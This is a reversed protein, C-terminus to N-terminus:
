LQCRTLHKQFETQFTLADAVEDFEIMARYGFLGAIVRDRGFEVVVVCECLSIQTQVESIVICSTQYQTAFSIWARDKLVHFSVVCLMWRGWHVKKIRVNHTGPLRFQTYYLPQATEVPSRMSCAISKQRSMLPSLVGSKEKSPVMVNAAVRNKREQWVSYARPATIIALIGTVIMWMCFCRRVVNTEGISWRLTSVVTWLFTLLMFSLTMTTSDSWPPQVHRTIYLVPIFALVLIINFVALVVSPSNLKLISSQGPIICTDMTRTPSLYVIQIQFPTTFSWMALLLIDSVIVTINLLHYKRSLKRIELVEMATFIRWVYLNKVLLPSTTMALYLVFFWTRLHCRTISDPLLEIAICAYGTIAGMHIVLAYDVEMSKIEFNKRFSSIFAASAACIIVGAFFLSFLYARVESTVTYHTIPPPAGDSPPTSSGGFFLLQGSPYLSFSKGDISMRGAAQPDSGNYFLVEFPAAFDGYSNIDVPQQTLGDFGLGKFFEFGMQSQLKRDALQRAGDRGPMSKLLKEFGHLMMIACDFLPAVNAGLDFESMTLNSQSIDTYRRLFERYLATSSDPNPQQILVFGQQLTSNKLEIPLLSMWVYKPGVLGHEALTEYVTSQFDEQGSLIVYRADVRHLLTTLYDITMNDLGSKKIGINELVKIHNQMMSGRIDKASESGFNDDTQYVIAVRAVNWAKLLTAMHEGAGLSTMTRWFYPFNARSSLQPTGASGSCYPIQALSLVEAPGITTTSFQNGIVGIVDPHEEVIENAMVAAAFGGSAGSYTDLVSPYWGGCDTFRKLNVHIGPLISPDDNVIGVAAQIAVDSFYTWSSYLESVIASQEASVQFNTVLSGNVQIYDFDCYNGVLALTINIPLGAM